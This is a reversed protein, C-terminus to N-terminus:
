VFAAPHITTQYGHALTNVVSRPTLVQVIQDIPRTIRQHYGEPSWAFLTDKLVLYPQGGQELTIFSGDPLHDIQEPYTVKQKTATIREQHLITDIVDVSPKLGGALGPQAQVWLSCFTNFRSRMCEACPRHGAALATAEDLFFLQTYHRPAMIPQRRGKFNLQCIIWRRSQYLRRINQDNDHLCGRNGMFNGRATTSIIDGLPTVRNQRPM